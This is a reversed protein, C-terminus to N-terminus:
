PAGLLQISGQDRREIGHQAEENKQVFISYDMNLPEQRKKNFMWLVLFVSVSKNCLDCM